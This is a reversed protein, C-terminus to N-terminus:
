PLNASSGYSTGGTIGARLVSGPAAPVCVLDRIQESAVDGIPPCEVCRLVCGFPRKERGTADCHWANEYRDNSTDRSKYIRVLRPHSGAVPYEAGARDLTAICHREKARARGRM